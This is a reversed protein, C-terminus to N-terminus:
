QARLHPCSIRDLPVCQDSHSKEQARICIIGNAYPTGEVSQGLKACDSAGQSVALGYAEPTLWWRVALPNGTHGHVTSYTYCHGHM